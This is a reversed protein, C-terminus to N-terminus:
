VSEPVNVESLVTSIMGKVEGAEAVRGEECRGGERKSNRIM